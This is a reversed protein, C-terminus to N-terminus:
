YGRRVGVPKVRGAQHNLAFSGRWLQLLLGLHDPPHRLLLALLRDGVDGELEEVHVPVAVDGPLLEGLDPLNTVFSEGTM